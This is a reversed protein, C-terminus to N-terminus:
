KKGRVAVVRTNGFGHFYRESISWGRAEKRTAHMPWTNLWRGKRSKRYQVKWKIKAM